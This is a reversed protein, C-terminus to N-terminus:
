SFCGLCILRDVVLLLSRGVHHLLQLVSTCCVPRGQHDNGQARNIGQHGKRRSILKIRGTAWSSRTLRLTTEKALQPYAMSSGSIGFATLQASHRQEYRRSIERLGEYGATLLAIAILSLILSLTGTIHWQRFVICLNTSSWTFLM